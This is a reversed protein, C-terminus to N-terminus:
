RRRLQNFTYLLIGGAVSVNLSEFKDMEIKVIIDCLELLDKHVGQGENGLLIGYYQVDKIESLNVSRDHLSTGFISLGKKQKELILSALDTRIIPMHFLAGQSSQITKSNYFDVTKPSCYVHDIGMAYATRLLTGANGPDQIDDLLLIRDEKTHVVEPKKCLGIMQPQSDQTSLKKLVPKSCYTCPIHDFSPIDELFFTEILCHAKYAEEIVHRGEVLFHGTQDRYKKMHLKTLEKITKNQTSEIFNM